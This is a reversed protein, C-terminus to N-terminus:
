AQRGLQGSGARPLLLLMAAVLALGVAGALGSLGVVEVGNDLMRQADSVWPQFYGAEYLPWLVLYAVGIALAHAAALIWTRRLANIHELKPLARMVRATFLADSPGAAAEDFMMLELEIYEDLVARCAPDAQVAERLAPTLWERGKPDARLQQASVELAFLETEFQEANMM